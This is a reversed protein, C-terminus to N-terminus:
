ARRQVISERYLTYLGSIVILGIGVWQLGAPIDGFVLYGAILAWLIVTYRFPSVASVDVDRFAIIIAINGILVTVAACALVVLNAASVPVWPAVLSLLGGSAMLVVVSAAAILLTPADKSLNRTTVDRLAVGMTSLVALIAAGQFSPAGPKIVLLMGLFGAIVAAWRRWRVPEKLVLAAMVTIMLPSLLLIATIDAIALHALAAIYTYAVFLEILCRGLVARDRLVRLERHLGQRWVVACILASAFLGRVFLIQATPLEAAAIKVLTDNIVFLAMAICM